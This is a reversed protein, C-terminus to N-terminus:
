QRLEKISYAWRVTPPPEKEEKFIAGVKNQMKAEVLEQASMPALVHIVYSGDELSVTVTGPTLTISNALIVQAVKGRLRTRFQLLVPDIPMRPHLVLYAVQLNAMVIRSFLWPLYLLFRLLQMFAFKTDAEGKKGRHSLFHSLDNTLFTVLGAALVGLSIYKVEYRGSLVLWFVFLIIFQLALGALRRRWNQKKAKLDDPM